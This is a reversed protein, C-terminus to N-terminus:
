LHLRDCKLVNEMCRLWNKHHLQVWNLFIFYISAKLYEPTRFRKECNWMCLM